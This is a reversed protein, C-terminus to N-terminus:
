LFSKMREAKIQIFIKKKLNLIYTEGKTLNIKNYIKKTSWFDKIEILKFKNEKRTKAWLDFSFKRKNLAANKNIKKKKPQNTTKLNEDSWKSILNFLRM